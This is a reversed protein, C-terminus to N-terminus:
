QADTRFEFSGTGSLAPGPNPPWNYQKMDKQVMAQVQERFDPASAHASFHKLWAAMQSDTLVHTTAKAMEETIVARMEAETKTPPPEPTPAPPAPAPAPKGELVELRQRFDRLILNQATIQESLATMKAELVAVPNPHEM